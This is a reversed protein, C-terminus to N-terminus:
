SRDVFVIIRRIGWCLVWFAGIASAITAADTASLTPLSLTGGSSGSGSTGGGSSGTAFTLSGAPAEGYNTNDDSASEMCQGSVLTSAQIYTYAYTGCTDALVWATSVLLSADVYTGPYPSGSCTSNAPVVQCVNVMALPSVAHAISFPSALACGLMAQGLLGLRDRPEFGRLKSPRRAVRLLLTRFFRLAM